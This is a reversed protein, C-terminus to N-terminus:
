LVCNAFSSKMATMSFIFASFITRYEAYALILKIQSM